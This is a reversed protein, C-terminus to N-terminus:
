DKYKFSSVKERFLSEELTYSLTYKRGTSIDFSLWHNWILAQQGADRELRTQLINWSYQITFIWYTYNNPFIHSHAAKERSVRYKRATM